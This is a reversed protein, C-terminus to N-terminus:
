DQTREWDLFEEVEDKLKAYIALIVSLDDAFGFFGLFDPVIDFPSIFYVLGLVLLGLTSGSLKHSGNFHARIMRVFIGLPAILNKIRPDEGIKGIKKVTNSLLEKVKEEQRLVAEVQKGFLKKARDVIETAKSKLTTM